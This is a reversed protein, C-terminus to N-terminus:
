LNKNNYKHTLVMIPLNGCQKEVVKKATPFDAVDNDPLEEIGGM